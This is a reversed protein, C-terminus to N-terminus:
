LQCSSQALDIGLTDLDNTPHIMGQQPSQSVLAHPQTLAIPMRLQQNWSRFTLKRGVYAALSFEDSRLYTIIDNNDTSKTHLFALAVARVGLYAAYDIENMSRGAHARFRNQLQTAGWQEIRPHWALPELGASGVVPRPLYTNYPLYEAFDKIHDAVFVADYDRMTQTFLPMERAASRRLDANFSWQKTAVINLGYRKASRKFSKTLLLDQQHIGSVVLINTLRRALLWQALADNKMNHSAITHFTSASCQSLRLDDHGTAVNILTITKDRSWKQASLLSDYPLNLLLINIGQAFRTNLL